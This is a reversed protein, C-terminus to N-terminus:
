VVENDMLAFMTKHVFCNLNNVSLRVKSMKFVTVKIRGKKMIYGEAVFEHDLQFLLFNTRLFVKLYFM